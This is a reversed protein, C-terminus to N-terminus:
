PEEGSRAPQSPQQLTYVLYAGLKRDDKSPKIADLNAVPLMTVVKVRAGALRRKTRSATGWGYDSHFAGNFHVVLPRSARVRQYAQAVSEAMTEDKVCQAFYFRETTERKQADTKKDDGPMPHATMTEAFRRYYGDFPCKLEAAVYARTTADLGDLYGLGTKSVANALKRPVNGAVITWGRARAFEVLPRYDTQYRPWPRSQKLFEQEGIQGALYQDLVPQVDREFMELALIIAGRRRALGELVALELRHTNPDDHQEGVFVVDARSLDALMAEFDSFRKRGSEYVREPVYTASAAPAPTTGTAQAAALSRANGAPGLGPLAFLLLLPVTEILRM